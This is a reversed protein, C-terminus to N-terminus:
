ANASENPKARKLSLKPKDANPNALTAKQELAMRLQDNLQQSAEKAMKEQETLKRLSYEKFAKSKLMSSLRESTLENTESMKNYSFRFSFM